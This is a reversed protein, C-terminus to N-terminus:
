KPKSNSNRECLFHTLLLMFASPTNTTHCRENGDGEILGLSNNEQNNEGHLSQKRLVERKRLNNLCM